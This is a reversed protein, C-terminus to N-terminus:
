LFEPHPVDRLLVELAQNVPHLKCMARCDKDVVHGGPHVAWLDKFRSVKLDGICSGKYERRNVCIWLRGDPTVSTSLSPGCCTTYGHDKWDAWEQFREVSLEVDPQDALQELMTTAQAVWTRDGTPRLPHAPDTEISPRFTTYDAGLSRGLGYMQGALHWSDARLLFSAGVTVKTHRLFRVGACAAEFHDQTTHKHKAYLEASPWDLSIVAWSLYRGAIDRAEGMKSLAGGYTYLGQKLGLQAAMEVARHWDPHSTPEGGGSWVIGRVGMESADVLLQRLLKMDMLDGGPDHALPLLRGKMSAWPGRVHTHAFHCNDCGLPCRNSLDIEITVPAARGGERWKQVRDLNAVVKAAPDVYHNM